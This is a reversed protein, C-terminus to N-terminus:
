QTSGDSNPQEGAPGIADRIHRALDRLEFFDSAHPAEWNEVRGLLIADEDSFLGRLRANEAALRRVETALTLDITLAPFGAGLEKARAAAETATFPPQDEPAPTHDTETVSGKRTPTAPTAIEARIANAADTIAQQYAADDDAGTTDTLAEGAVLELAREMGRRFAAAEEVARVSGPKCLDCPSGDGDCAPCEAATLFRVM